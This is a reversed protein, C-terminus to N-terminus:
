FPQVCVFGHHRYVPDTGCCDRFDCLQEPLFAFSFNQTILKPPFEFIEANTKFSNSLMWLVPFGAWIAGLILLVIILAKVPKKQKGIM